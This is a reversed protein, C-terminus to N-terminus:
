KKLELSKKIQKICIKKTFIELLKKERLIVLLMYGRFLTKLKKLWLFKKLGIQFMAKQFFTKISQYEIDGTNFKPDKNNIEKNSDIYTSLKVDVLKMKITSHYRNNYKNVKADLKDIYVNKSIVSMHKYITNKLTKIFREAVASTEENHTSYMEIDNKELWSKM